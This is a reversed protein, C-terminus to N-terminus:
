EVLQANPLACQAVLRETLIAQRSKRDLRLLGAWAGAHHPLQTVERAARAILSTRWELTNDDLTRWLDADSGFRELYDDLLPQAQADNRRAHRWARIRAGYRWDPRAGVIVDIVDEFFPLEHQSGCLESEAVRTRPSIQALSPDEIRFLRMSKRVPLIHERYYESSNGTLFATRTAVYTALDEDHAFAAVNKPLRDTAGCDLLVECLDDLAPAWDYATWLYHLYFSALTECRALHLKRALARTREIPLGQEQLVTAAGRRRLEEFAGLAHTGVAEALVTDNAAAFAPAAVEAALLQTSARTVQIGQRGAGPLIPRVRAAARTLEVRMPEDAASFLTACLVDWSLLGLELPRAAFTARLWALLEPAFGRRAVGALVSELSDTTAPHTLSDIPLTPSPDGAVSIREDRLSLAFDDLGRERALQALPPLSDLDIVGNM